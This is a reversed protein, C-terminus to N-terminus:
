PLFKLMLYASQRVAYMKLQQFVGYKVNWMAALLSNQPRILAVKQPKYTGLINLNLNQYKIISNQDICNM